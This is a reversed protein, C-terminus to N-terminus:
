ATAKQLVTMTIPWGPPEEGQAAVTRDERLRLGSELTEAVLEDPTLLHRTLTANHVATRRTGHWTLRTTQRRVQPDRDCTLHVNGGDRGTVAFEATFSSPVDTPAVPLWNLVM